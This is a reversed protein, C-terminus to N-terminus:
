VTLKLYSGSFKNEMRLWVGTNVSFYKRFHNSALVFVALKKREKKREEKERMKKKEDGRFNM